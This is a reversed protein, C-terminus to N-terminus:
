MILDKDGEWTYKMKGLWGRSSNFDGWRQSWASHRIVETSITISNTKPVRKVSWSFSSTMFQIKNITKVSHRM